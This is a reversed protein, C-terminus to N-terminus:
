FVEQVVELTYIAVTKFLIDGCILVKDFSLDSNYNESYSMFSQRTGRHPNSGLGLDVHRDYNMDATLIDIM